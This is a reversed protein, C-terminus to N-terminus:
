PLFPVVSNFFIPFLNASAYDDYAKLAPVPIALQLDGQIDYYGLPNLVCTFGSVSYFNGDPGLFRFTDGQDYITLLKNGQYIAYLAKPRGEGWQDAIQALGTQSQQPGPGPTGAKSEFDSVAPTSVDSIQTSMRFNTFFLSSLQTIAHYDYQTYGNPNSKDCSIVHLADLDTFEYYGAPNIVCKSGVIVYILNASSLFRYIPTNDSITLYVRNITVAYLARPGGGNWLTQIQQLIPNM